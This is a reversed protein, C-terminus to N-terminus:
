GHRGVKLMRSLEKAQELCKYKKKKMAEADKYHLREAIENMKYGEAWLYLIEACNKNLEGLVKELAKLEDQDMTESNHDIMMKVNDDLELSGMEASKRAKKYWQYLLSTSLFAALNQVEEKETNRIRKVVPEYVENLVDLCDDESAGAMRLRPFLKSKWNVIMYRWAQENDAGGRRIMETLERDSYM